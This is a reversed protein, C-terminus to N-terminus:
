IVLIPLPARYSFGANVSETLLISSGAAVASVVNFRQGFEADRAGVHHLADRSEFVEFAGVAPKGVALSRM